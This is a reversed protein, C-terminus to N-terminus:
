PLPWVYALGRPADPWLPLYHDPLKDILRSRHSEHVAPSGWWRPRTTDPFRRLYEVFTPGCKHDNYGRRTWEHVMVLGYTALAGEHGRWMKVAPHNRWGRRDHEPDLALLIQKCEVRQKGLRLRDLSRACEIYTACPVFTQM